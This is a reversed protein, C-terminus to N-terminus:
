ANERHVREPQLNQEKTKKKWRFVANSNRIISQLESKHEESRSTRSTSRGSRIGASSLSRRIAPMTTGSIESLACSADAGILTSSASALFLALAHLMNWLFDQQDGAHRARALLDSSCVDSSWDSIRM